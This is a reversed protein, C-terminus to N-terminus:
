HLNATNIMFDIIKERVESKKLDLIEDTTLHFVAHSCRIQSVIVDDGVGGKVLAKVDSVTMSTKEESSPALASTSAHPVTGIALTSTSTALLLSLSVAFLGLVRMSTNM